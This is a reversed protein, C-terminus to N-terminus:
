LYHQYFGYVYRLLDLFSDLASLQNSAGAEQEDSGDEGPKISKVLVVGLVCAFITTTLYYVFTRKGLKGASNTDIEALAVVISSITLPLIIMRLMRIFINGLFKIYMVVEETPPDTSQQVADHVLIGIIFGLVVAVVIALLQCNNKLVEWIKRVRNTSRPREVTAELVDMLNREKADSNVIIISSM